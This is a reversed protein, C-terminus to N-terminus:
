GRAIGILILALGALMGVQCVVVAILCLYMMRIRHQLETRHHRERARRRATQSRYTIADWDPEPLPVDAM